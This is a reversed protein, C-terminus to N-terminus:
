SAVEFVFRTARTVVGDCPAHDIQVGISQGADIPQNFIVLGLAGWNSWYGGSALTEPITPTGAFADLSDSGTTIPDAGNAAALGDRKTCTWSPPGVVPGVFEVSVLVCADNANFAGIVRNQYTGPEDPISTFEIDVTIQM